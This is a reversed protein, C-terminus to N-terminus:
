HSPEATGALARTVAVAREKNMVALIPGIQREKMRGLIATATTEDLRDLIPAAEEPKMSEYIKSLVPAAAAQAAGSAAGPAGAPAAAGAPAGKELQTLEDAITKELAQLASERTVLAQEREDLHQGRERVAELLDRFGRSQALLAPPVQAAENAASEKAEDGHAADAPAVWWWAGFVIAKVMLSVLVAGRIWGM